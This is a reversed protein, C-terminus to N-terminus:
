KNRKPSSPLKKLGERARAEASADLPKAYSCVDTTKITRREALPLRRQATSSPTDHGAKRMMEDVRAKWEDYDELENLEDLIPKAERTNESM